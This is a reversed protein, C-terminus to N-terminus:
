TSAPGEARSACLGAQRGERNMLWLMFASLATGALVLGSTSAFWFGRAGQLGAPV